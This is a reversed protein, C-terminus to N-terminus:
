GIGINHTDDSLDGGKRSSSELADHLRPRVTYQLTWGHGLPLIQMLLGFIRIPYQARSALNVLINSTSTLRHRTEVAMRRRQWHLWSTVGHEISRIAGSACGLQGCIVQDYIVRIKSSFVCYRIPSSFRAGVIDNAQQRHLDFSNQLQRCFPQDALASSRNLHTGSARAM